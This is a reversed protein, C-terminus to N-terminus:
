SLQPRFANKYIVEPVSKWVSVDGGDAGCVTSRHQAYIWFWFILLSVFICEIIIGHLFSSFVIDNSEHSVHSM